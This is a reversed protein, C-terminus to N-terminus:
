SGEGHPTQGKLGGEQELSMLGCIQLPRGEGDTEQLHNQDTYLLKM